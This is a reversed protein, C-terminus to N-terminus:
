LLGNKPLKFLMIGIKELPLVAKVLFEYRQSAGTEVLQHHSVAFLACTQFV